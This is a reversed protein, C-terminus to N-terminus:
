TGVFQHNIITANGSDGVPFHFEGERLMERNLLNLLQFLEEVIFHFVTLLRVM